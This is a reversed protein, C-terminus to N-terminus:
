ETIISTITQTAGGNRRAYDLAKQRLSAYRDTSVSNFWQELERDNNVIAGFGLDIMQQPTSKRHINPGFCLPLGYAVPEIVSHLYPTFGGGVYAYRGYRYLRALDGIYDIILVQTQSFDTNHDCATHCVAKGNCHAKIDDIVKQSIEHPAIICKLQPQRNIFATVMNLDKDDSISGAILVDAEQCFREIVPNSYPAQAIQLANDFLPDGVVTVNCFGMYQLNHLSHEDCVTIHRCQRLLRRLTGAYWKRLYSGDPVLMSVFYAPIHQANLEALYNMWYESIIFVARQPKVASIFRRANSRTDLPLYFVHDATDKRSVVEYGSPSFFTLVVQYGKQRLSAIVPRAVGYEGLSSCHVWCVPREDGAMTQEIHSLLGKQGNILRLTKSDKGVLWQLHGNHVLAFLSQLLRLALNYLSLTM